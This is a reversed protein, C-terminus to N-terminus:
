HRSLMEKTTESWRSPPDTDFAVTRSTQVLLVSEVLLMVALATLGAIGILRSM